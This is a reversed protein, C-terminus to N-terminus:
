KTPAPTPPKAPTPPLPNRRGGPALPAFGFQTLEPSKPGLKGRLLLGFSSMHQHLEASTADAREVAVHYAAAKADRDEVEALLALADAVMGRVDDLTIHIEGVSKILHDSKGSADLLVTATGKIFAYAGELQEKTKKDTVRRIIEPSLTGLLEALTPTPNNPM